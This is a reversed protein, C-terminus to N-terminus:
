EVLADLTQQAMRKARLPADGVYTSYDMLQRIADAPLYNLLREDSALRDVLPNALGKSIASWAVLSHERLVEHMEQRNAGAKGLAMLVREVASFRGYVALNRAITAEDVRLNEIIRTAVAIMEDVALFSEPLMTRRNASDDLTRELISHSANEWAVQVQSLVLRGLSCIKEANIPNRKFPMASSGVQKAGFPEAMEGFPPSQLIRLDLAFKYLSSAVGALVTLVRWDQKRPYTQTSVAFAEIGASQMVRQQFDELMLPTGAMLEQYSASTGVAGTFGKGRIDVHARQLEGFDVLLDQTYQSLRYGVTTIEAPQIHTYAMCPTDAYAEIQAALTSLLKRMAELILALSERLRLADANDEIDMSTAGLHIIGGATPCQGAFVRVEAMLDHHIEAEIAHAQAMDVDNVHAQLEAVQAPTVFGAPIQAEALAVWLRRWLQRKHVESWIRRMEVSGYRWSFPSQFQEFSDNLLM